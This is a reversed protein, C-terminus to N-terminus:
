ADEEQRLIEQAASPDFWDPDTVMQLRQGITQGRLDTTMGEHLFPPDCRLREPCCIGGGIVEAETELCARARWSIIRLPNKDDFTFILRPRAVLKAVDGTPEELPQTPKGDVHKPEGLTSPTGPHLDRFTIRAPPGNPDGPAASGEPQRTIRTLRAFVKVLAVTSPSKDAMVNRVAGAGPSAVRGTADDCMSFFNQQACSQLAARLASVDEPACLPPLYSLNQAITQMDLLAEEPSCPRDINSADLGADLFCHRLTAKADRSLEHFPRVQQNPPLSALFEKVEPSDWALGEASSPLSAGTMIACGASMTVRSLAKVWPANM